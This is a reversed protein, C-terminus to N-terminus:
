AIRQAVYAALREAAAEDRAARPPRVERLRHDILLGTRDAWRDDLALSVYARAMEEPELARARKKEYVWRKVGSLPPLRARDVKVAPVWIANVVLEPARRALELTHTLLALKSQYYARAPSFRDGREAGHEDVKMFPHAILGMSSVDLVRGKTDGASLAPRLLSTLLCPGLFNTAWVREVGDDNLMPATQTLDFVAANNILAHLQGYRSRVEDAFRRISAFSGLDLEIVQTREGIAEAARRGRSMSRCGMIVTAGRDALRAAAARGIGANAGTVIVPPSMELRPYDLALPELCLDAGRREAPRRPPM